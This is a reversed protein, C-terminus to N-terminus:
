ACALDELLARLSSVDDVNFRARSPEPGVRLSWASEPLAAFLDEDTADDGAALLFSWTRSALWHRAAAGKTAQLSRAEVVKKGLLVQGDSGLGVSALAETLERARRAGVDPDSARWHWALSREKPEIYAGPLRDAFVQMLDLVRARVEPRLGPSEVWVGDSARRRAGHEAVVDIPVGEFWHELTAADRGSLLVVRTGPRRALRTLLAHLAADPVAAAPVHTFPVLTGDYDLLLLRSDAGTWAELLRRHQDPPLRRAELARTQRRAQVLAEVQQEGWRAVDYRRLRERMHRNGLSSAEPSQDLARQLAEALGEVHFPNVLVAEGLERAAGATDSLVLVGSEDHRTALYEKAVLNMGDRLPTV